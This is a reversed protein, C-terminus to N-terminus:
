AAYIAWNLLAAFTVWLLYPVVLVAAIRDVRDFAVITVLIGLWLAVIIIFGLGPRQLGFFVPTWVLNIAFQVAFVGFALRVDGRHLGQRWLRYLAVGLVTFLLTWVIPFLIEPPYFWPREIWDTESGFFVAPFAGVVNVGLVFGIAVLAQQASPLRISRNTAM